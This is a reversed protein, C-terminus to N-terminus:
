AEGVVYAVFAECEEGDEAQKFIGNGEGNRKTGEWYVHARKFGAEIMVERIEPLTWMRWDYTFVERRKAEGKRKFHIYFKAEHSIPNFNEQEWYYIFDSIKTEDEQAQLCSPGGFADAVFIGNPKLGALARKFYQRLMMRSKFLYYSFNLAAIVDAKPVKATLVSDEFTSVRAQQEPKLQSLYHERGYALPEPDLDIGIARNEKHEKVWQCCIAFTGCFDERMLRPRTGRLQKYTDSIFETDMEPSQVARKYYFYKDFESLKKARSKKKSRSM